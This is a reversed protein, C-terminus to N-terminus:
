ASPPPQWGLVPGVHVQIGYAYSDQRYPAGRYLIADCREALTRYLSNDSACSYLLAVNIQKEGCSATVTMFLAADDPENVTTSWGADRLPTVLDRMCDEALIARRLTTGNDTPLEPVLCGKKQYIDQEILRMKIQTQGRFLAQQWLFTSADNMEPLIFSVHQSTDYWSEVAALTALTVILRSFNRPQQWSSATGHAFMHRNLWTLGKYNATNCFFHKKLWFRFTEFAFVREDQGFLYNTTKYDDPVWIGEFHLDAATRIARDIAHDIKDPATADAPLDSVIRTLSGEVAPILAAISSAPYGSYVGLYAERALPVIERVSRAQPMIQEICVAQFALTYLTSTYYDFLEIARAPAVTRVATLMERIKGMPLWLPFFWEMKDWLAADMDAVHRRVSWAVDGTSNVTPFFAKQDGTDLLIGPTRQFIGADHVMTIPDIIGKERAWSAIRDPTLTQLSAENQARHWIGNFLRSSDPSVM